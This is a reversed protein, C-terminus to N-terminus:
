RGRTRAPGGNESLRDIKDEVRELRRYVLSLQYVYETRQEVVREKLAAREAEAQAMGARIGVFASVGALIVTLLLSPWNSFTGRAEGMTV